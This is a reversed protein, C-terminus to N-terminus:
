EKHPRRPLGPPISIRAPTREGRFRFARWEEATIEWVETAFRGSVYERDDSAVVRMGTKESIRRSGINPVAKPVRLVPFALTDFWFDTVAVVAETMLGQGWHEPAIWFGRNNDGGKMLAIHGILNAPSSKRRLTWTWSEGRAMKPLAIDRIYTLAGGAPYPWPVVRALYRVVEWQPFLRQTQEADELQLPRLFLRTTELPPTM